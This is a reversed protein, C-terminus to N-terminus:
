KSIKPDIGFCYQGISAADFIGQTYHPHMTNFLRLNEKFSETPLSFFNKSKQAYLGFASM